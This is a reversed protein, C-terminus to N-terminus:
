AISISFYLYCHRLIYYFLLGKVINVNVSLRSSIFVSYYDQHSFIMFQQIIIFKHKRHINVLVFYFLFSFSSVVFIGRGKLKSKGITYKSLLCLLQKHGVIRLFILSEMCPCKTHPIYNFKCVITHQITFLLFSSYMRLNTIQLM